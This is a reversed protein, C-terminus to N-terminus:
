SFTTNTILQELVFLSMKGGKLGKISSIVVITYTLIVVFVAQSVTILIKGM